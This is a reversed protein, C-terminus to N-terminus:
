SSMTRSGGDFGASGERQAFIERVVVRDDFPLVAGGIEQGTEHGKGLVLVLDGPEAMDVALEIASRRDVEIVVRGPDAGAAVEDVISQPDESRPNDSTLVAVDALSAMEGMLPRKRRDRDGGAGVVVLVRGQSMERAASVASRIGEPTHAYDVVVQVPGPILEFRGPIGPLSELAAAVEDDAMGIALCCGVAVLANQVNFAGMIPTTLSRSFRPTVMEFDSGGATVALNEARIEADIGVSLVPIKTRGAIERGAPDDVNIVATGVQYERFLREKARLYADMSGHFDLHDQSLNTFAAAAFETGSVRDLDLAHSSVEAAILDAEMDRMEGLLRQFDTAEPTTRPSPWSTQGLRTAVTGILGATAGMTRAIAEIYHAVTTKGNTGTIGVVPVQKSPDGHIASALRGMVGRTDTVVLQSINLDLVSEVCVATSGAELAGSVFGHGDYREGKVAIFMVGPGTQRSDHTVDAVSVEPDGVVEGGIIASLAGLTKPLM